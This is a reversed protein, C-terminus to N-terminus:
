QLFLSIMLLLYESVVEMWLRTMDKKYIIAADNVLHAIVGLTIVQFSIM